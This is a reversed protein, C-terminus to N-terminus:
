PRALRYFKKPGDVADYVHRLGGEASPVADVARWPGAALDTCFQLQWEAPASAPWAIDVANGGLPRIQLGLGGLAGDGAYVRVEDLLLSQDSATSLGEFTLEAAAGAAEFVLSKEVYPNGAGVPDQEEGLVEVGDILVRYPTPGPSDGSRANVLYKLTYRGGAALGGIVQSLSGKNQIFAVRDQGGAVGNDSFPGVGDVNIGHGGTAKWGAMAGVYGAGSPSGSAEFSPNQVLVQGEEYPAISVADVLLSADGVAASVLELLGESASAVFFAHFFAFGQGEGVPAVGPVSGLAVGDFRVQFDVVGGCCNRANYYAQVGYRQGPVLGVVRQSLAQPGQLFALQQRDPLIGNDFFPMGLANLGTSAVAGSWAEIPGYGAGPTLASTEFSANRVWSTVGEIRVTGDVGDHGGNDEVVVLTTGRGVGEIETSLTVEEAGAPFELTVLGSGDADVLRAVGENGMRLTVTAPGSALRQGSVTFSARSRIGPGVEIQGPGARLPPIPEVVVGSVQVDDLLVTQDGGATQAFRLEASAAAATFNVTARRYAEGGEVATVAEEFLPSGDLSVQLVPANGRRANYRFSVAYTEGAVLGRLVQSIAFESQLYAVHDQEPISGNDAFPGDGGNIGAGGIGAGRWGAAASVGGPYPPTGSAEFSPNMVVVQGAGRPVLCVGDLLASADGAAISVLGLTGSEAAARFPVNRFQYGEGGTAFAVGSIKDLTVGDWQTALDLVGGCCSRADYFFQIWYDQGATLGSITQQLVQSGQLFAAQERDAMPTGANHFPGGARNTGNGGAWSGIAGYHPWAEVYSDEFSPNAVLGAGAIGGGLVSVALLILPPTAPTAKM